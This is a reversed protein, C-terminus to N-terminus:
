GNVLWSFMHVGLMIVMLDGNFWWKGTTKRHNKKSVWGFFRWTAVKWHWSGPEGPAMDGVEPGGGVVGTDGPKPPVGADGPNPLVAVQRLSRPPIAIAYSYMCADIIM